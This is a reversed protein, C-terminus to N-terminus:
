QEECSRSEDREARAILMTDGQARFDVMLSNLAPRDPSVQSQGTENVVDSNSVDVCVHAIVQQEQADFRLGEFSALRVEGTMRLGEAHLESYTRRDAAQFDGVSYRYLVEFSAPDALDVANMAGTYARYTEEAAAFAEEDSAFAATKTPKPTPEAEPTCASLMGILLGAAALASGTRALTTTM